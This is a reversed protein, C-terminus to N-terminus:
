CGYVSDFFMIFTCSEGVLTKAYPKQLGITMMSTLQSKRIWYRQSPNLLDLCDGHHVSFRLHM